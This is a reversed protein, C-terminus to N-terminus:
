MAGMSLLIKLKAGLAVSKQSRWHCGNSLRFHVVVKPPELSGHELVICTGRLKSALTKWGRMGDRGELFDLSFKQEM